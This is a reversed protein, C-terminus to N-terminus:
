NFNRGDRSSNGNATRAAMGESDTDSFPFIGRMDAGAAAPRTGPEATIASAGADAGSQRSLPAQPAVTRVGERFDRRIRKTRPSPTGRGNRVSPAVADAHDEGVTYDTGTAGEAGAIITAAAFRPNIQLHASPVFPATTLDLISSSSTSRLRGHQAAVGSTPIPIGSTNLPSQTFQVAYYSIRPPRRSYAAM